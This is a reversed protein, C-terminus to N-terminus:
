LYRGDPFCAQIISVVKFRVKIYYVYPKCPYVKNEKNRSFFMTPVRKFRRASAAWVLVWLRHKSCFHSFYWFKKDSFKWKKTTFNETYKFLCTKTIHTFTQGFNKSQQCKRTSNHYPRNMSYPFDGMRSKLVTKVPMAWFYRVPILISM